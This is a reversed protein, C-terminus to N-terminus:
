GVPACWARATAKAALSAASSTHVECEHGQHDHCHRLLVLKELLFFTLVGGLLLGLSAGAAAVFSYIGIAKAQERPEPFMVPNSVVLPVRRGDDLVLM